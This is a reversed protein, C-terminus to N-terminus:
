ILEVIEAQIMSIEKELIPSVADDAGDLEKKKKVLDTKLLAIREKNSAVKLNSVLDSITDYYLLDSNFRITLVLDNDKLDIYENVAGKLCELMNIDNANVLKKKAKYHHLLVLVDQENSKIYKNFSQFRAMKENHKKEEIEQAAQKAAQIHDSSVVESQSQICKVLYGSINKIENGKDIEFLLREVGIKCAGVGYKNILDSAQKQQIGYSRLQLLATKSEQDLEEPKQPQSEHTISNNKSEDKINNNEKKLRFKLTIDTYRKGTKHLEYDLNIDTHLNIEDQLKNIIKKQFMATNSNYSNEMNIISKFELLTHKVENVRVHRNFHLKLHIYLECSYNNKFKFINSLQLRTYNTFVILYPLIDKHIEVILCGKGDLYEFNEFWRGTKFSNKNDPEILSPITAISDRMIGRTIKKIERSFQSIPIKTIEVIKERSLSILRPINDIDVKEVKENTYEGNDIMIKHKYLHSLTYMFIKTQNLSWNTEERLETFIKPLYAQLKAIDLKIGM